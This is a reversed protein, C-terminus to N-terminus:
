FLPFVSLGYQQQYWLLLVFSLLCATIIASKAIDKIIFATDYRLLPMMDTDRQRTTQTEAAATEETAAVSTSSAEEERRRRAARKEAKTRRSM